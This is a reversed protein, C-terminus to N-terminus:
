PVICVHHNDSKVDIRSVVGLDLLGPVEFVDTNGREFKDKGSISKQLKILGSNGKEGFLTVAIHADTGANKIDATTVHIEYDVRSGTESKRDDTELGGGAERNPSSPGLAKFLREGDYGAAFTNGPFLTLKGDSSVM